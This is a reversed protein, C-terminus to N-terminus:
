HRMINRNTSATKKLLSSASCYQELQLRCVLPMPTMPSSIGMRSSCEIGSNSNRCTVGPIQIGVLYQLQEQVRSFELLGLFTRMQFHLDLFNVTGAIGSLVAPYRLIRSLEIIRGMCENIITM